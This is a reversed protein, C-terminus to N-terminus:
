QLMTMKREFVAAQKGKADLASMRLVFIGTGAARGNETGTNWQLEGAGTRGRCAVTQRWVVVGRLDCITFELSEIGTAPLSYRIRVGSRFPNPYTGILRLVSAMLVPAKALYGDGGVFLWRYQTTGGVVAVGASPDEYRGSADNYVKAKVAAPMAGASVLGYAIQQTAQTGNVFALRYACGGSASSGELAHGYVKKRSEDYVGAYTQSFSPSLPYYRMAGGKSPDYACYVDTLQGGGSVKSSVKIAWGGGSKKKQQVQGYKSMSEPIPPVRLTIQESPMPNLITYGTLDLCGMTATRNALNAMALDAIYLPQTHFSGSTDREWSYIQLSEANLSGRLTSDLIDGVKINFKYPLALDTWANAAVVIPQPATLPVTVGSGFDLETEDRTKIWTLGGATFRFVDALGDSYEVWKQDSQANAANPYWKFLRVKKTDYTWPKGADVITRLAYHVQPSDLMATVRLPEWKLAETRVYDSNVRRVQRSENVKTTHVGDSASFVARVGNDQTVMASPIHVIAQGGRTYGLSGATDSGAGFADSGKACSFRWKVNASNDSVTFTDYMDTFEPVTDTHSARGVAVATTDLMVMFVSGLNNTKVSVYGGAVDVIVTSEPAWVSDQFRYVRLDNPSAGVPLGTFKLGVYFRASSQGQAFRFAISVPVFGSLFAPDPLVCVVKDTVRVVDTVSDTMLRISNNFAYATDGAMSTFYTVSQWNYGTTMIARQSSDTPPTWAGGERREWLSVYYATNFLLNERLRISVTTDTANNVAVVQQALNDATSDPYGTVTYSIGVQLSDTAQANVKFKVKIQDTLSDFLLSDLKVANSPLKLGPAPTLDDASSAQTVVSWLGGKYVQAGFYYHTLPQLGTVSFATDTVAPSATFFVTTDFYYNNIPVAAGARYVIRIGEVGTVAPWSLNIKTSLVAHASLTIPNVPRNVGVSFSAKVAPSAKGNRGKVMVACWVTKVVGTNYQPNVIVMSDKGSAAILAAVDKMKFRKTALPDTFDPATDSALSGYWVCFSDVSSTDVAKLNDVVLAASDAGIYKGTIGCGNPPTSTDKVVVLCGNGATFKSWTGDTWHVATTFGYVTDALPQPMRITDKVHMAALTYSKAESAGTGSLPITTPMYWLAISDAFPALPGTPLVSYNNYTIEVKGASILRGSILVPNDDYTRIALTMSDGRAGSYDFVVLKATFSGVASYTHTPSVSLSDVTNDGFYWYRKTVVGTSADTFTVALPIKGATVSATFSAKALVNLVAGNSTVSAVSNTAVVTYTAADGASAAAIGYSASTAGTIATGNKRWQYTPAPAGTAVVTFTVVVGPAVAQSQPQTTIVPPSTAQTVTISLVTSTSGGANTATVKYSATATVATPTGTIFGTASSLTLGAPLAPSVSYSTVTGTVVATDPSILTGTAYSVPNHKYSLNTPPAGITAVTQGIQQNAYCLRIWDSSRATNAVILEDVKGNFFHSGYGGSGFGASDLNWGISADFTTARPLTSAVSATTNSVFSGDVYISMASGNRIGAVYHWTGSQAAAVVDLWGVGDEFESMSWSNAKSIQIAYQHDGKAFFDHYLNDLVNTNVWASITYQGAQPFNLKGSASGTVDFYSATGNFNKARGIVGPADVPKTGGSSTGTYNNVTADMTNGTGAEGLHWAAQFGNATDFVMHGNSSDAAGSKGWLMKFSQTSSGAYVTDLRVWIEATDNNNAGDVWREIQYTLHTGNTKAFRVDAGGALTNAFGSFNGQNLRVLVPFKTVNTTINAGTATTNLTITASSSWQSYDDAAFATVGLFFAGFILIAHMRPRSWIRGSLRKM